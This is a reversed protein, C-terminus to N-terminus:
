ESAPPEDFMAEFMAYHGDDMGLSRYTAMAARNRKDVYLRLGGSGAERAAEEIAAYMTRFVGRRRWHVPVYVSQFWWVPRARWDSWEDTIMCTGVVAGAREAVFYRAGVGGEFVARVGRLVTTPDLAIGETERAMEVNWGAIQEAEDPRAARVDIRDWRERLTAKQVKGMANRPLDGVLEVAKPVKYPAMRDRCWARLEDPQVVAGMATVVSAVVREGLDPDAVGVVAAASVAPHELLSAEVESPYVNLGGSLVMDKSRGVIHIYGDGDVFGLDGSHMWGGELAAATADPRGLYGQFVSPGSIRVEGVQDPEAPQGTQVDFVRVDAGPVPFGVAGPRREGEYPNTLVIGVETMGYRELIRHGFRAEFAQHDRAPLPASGSTFLRVGDLTWRRDGPLALFRSYFTPVGMFVTGGDNQLLDLARAPDFRSMWRATAGARLAGHQAVFLGHVHFLPLAHVIVDDQSWRWAQHLGEVCARLNDHTLLAGKPRGTTGSTYLVMAITDDDLADPLDMPDAADLEARLGPGAPVIRTDLDRLEPANDALVVALRAGSDELYYRLERPPYTENLPLTVVGTGLAALHLELFAPTRPMQLAVVDGRSLGMAGLWGAARRIRQTLEAYSIREEDTVIAPHEERWCARMRQLWSM